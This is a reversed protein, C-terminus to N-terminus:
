VELPPGRSPPLGLLRVVVPAVGQVVFHLRPALAMRMPVSAPAAPMAIHALQCCVPCVPHAKAGSDAPAPEGCIPAEFALCHAFAGGWQVLLVAALIWILRVHRM